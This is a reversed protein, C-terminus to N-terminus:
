VVFARAALGILVIGVLNCVFSLLIFRSPKMKSFGLISIGIEDPLPSAIVLGGVLFTIWRFSRRKFLVRVRKSFSQHAFLETLHESFREKVFYFILMDGVVAGIAGFFAVTFLSFVQSIEGLAVIAPATTFVSTFFLGAIFSGLIKYEQASVLLKELVSSQSFIIAVVISLGLLGLDKLIDRHTGSM